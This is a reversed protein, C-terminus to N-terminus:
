DKMSVAIKSRVKGARVLELGRTLEAFPLTEDLVPKLKGEAFWVSLQELDGAVPQVMMFVCHKSSFLTALKGFVFSASPVLTVFTGGDKLRKACSAYAANAVVDFIVDFTGPIESITTANYDYVQSAGLSKVLAAKAASATGSVQAGLLKAIQVAYSGVGGSAGNVLVTQGEQVNSTKRLAQLATIGATAAGAAQAHSLAAPKTGVTRADVCLFEAFTGAGNKRSYPLFGFVEDGPKRSSVGEGVSIVVGSFDFGLPMPFKGAHLTRGAFSGSVVKVDSPNLGAAFVEVLLEGAVPVPQTVERLKVFDLDGYKELLYARM